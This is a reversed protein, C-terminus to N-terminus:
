FKGFLILWIVTILHKLNERLIKFARGMQNEVTKISIGMIEAIEAYKLEDFKAMRFVARCKEPLGDIAEYFSNSFEKNVLEDDPTRYLSLGSSVEPEYKRETELRRLFKLSENKVSTYMYTKLNQEPDIRERNQWIKLFVDQVINEAAPQDRLIRYSFYILPKSLKSFLDHFAKEDGM